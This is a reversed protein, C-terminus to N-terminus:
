IKAWEEDSYAKIDKKRYPLGYTKCWKHVATDSVNYDKGIQVFSKKRILNKLIERNPKAMGIDILYCDKCLFASYTKIKGCKPCISNISRNRIPYSIGVKIRTKGQNIESITDEGVSYKIALEKQTLSSEKLDFIINDIDDDSLKMEHGYITGELTANYGQKYSDYFNIWYLERENLLSMDCEEIVEFTFNDIGYKKIAKYLPIDSDYCSANRHQRWRRSIDISQGIYIKGNVQNTIKYIGIM